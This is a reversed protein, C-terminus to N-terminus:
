SYREVLTWRSVPTEYDGVATCSGNACTVGSLEGSQAGAPTAIPDLSWSTGNWQEVLASSVGGNLFAAGVAFCSSTTLCSIGVLRSDYASTPNPSPVISWTTGDWQEILTEALIPADPDFHAGAAYCRDVAPCAVSSLWNYPATPDNPSADVSWTLGDWEEVLTSQTAGVAYSGVAVCASASSCSIGFPGASSSGGPIPFLGPSLTAGDWREFFAIRSIPGQGDGIAICSAPSGCSIATLEVNSMDPPDPVAVLSWQIGDWHEVLMRIDDSQGFLGVAFCSTTTACSISSLRAFGNTGSGPDPTAVLKWSTGNWQEVLAANDSFYKFSPASGGVAFCMTASPCSVSALTSASGGGTVVSWVKGNWKEILTGFFDSGVATCSVVSACTISGLGSSTFQNRRPVTVRAWSKGDGGCSGGRGGHLQVPLLRRRLVCDGVLLRNRRARQRGRQRLFAARRADQRDVVYRRRVARDPHDVLELNHGYYYGVAFCAKGTPCSVASLASTPANPPNPSAEISWAKGNWREVLTKSVPGNSLGVAVCSANTSCAIGSLQGGGPPNASKVVSWTAGNWHEIFTKSASSAGNMYGVAYCSTSAPCVIGSLSSKTFGPTKPNPM